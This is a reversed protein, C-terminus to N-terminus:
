IDTVTDGIKRKPVTYNGNEDMSYKLSEGAEVEIIHSEHTPYGFGIVSRIELGEDIQLLERLGDCNVSGLICSGVGHAYAALTLNSAALGEDFGTFKSHAAKESLIAVFLTPREGEKPSGRGDPIASGWRTLAFVAHVTEPKQIYIYRLPQANMASSALQAAKKMDAIVEPPIQKSEDFRRYTRRAELLMMLETTNM